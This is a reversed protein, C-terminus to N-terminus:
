LFLKQADEVPTNLQPVSNRKDDDNAVRKFHEDIYYFTYISKLAVDNEPPLDRCAISKVTGDDHNAAREFLERCLVKSGDHLTEGEAGTLLMIRFATEQAISM